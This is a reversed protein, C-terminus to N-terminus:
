LGIGLGIGSRSAPPPPNSGAVSGSAALEGSGAFGARGRAVMRGAMTGTGESAAAFAAATIREGRASFTGLGAIAQSARTTMRGALSSTGAGVAALAASAARAGRASFTGIGTVAQSGRTVLRAAFTASGSASAAFAAALQRRGAAAFGGAGTAAFAAALQRRGAAAFGGAGTAAVAAALQRRGAAAFGGAGTAAFSAQHTTAANPAELEAWSVAGGRRNATTGGSASTTFRLRLNTWDTVGAMSPTFSYQTWTGTATKAADAAILTTGQYVACTVTVASGAGDLTGSNTKAIRYRVTTTGGGPTGTPNSLGVELVAAVNNAGFAKDADSAPAEDIEAFGGTFSTQTVNSDPRLFQSV